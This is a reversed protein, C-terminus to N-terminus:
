EQNAAATVNGLATPDVTHTKAFCVGFPADRSDAYGDKM